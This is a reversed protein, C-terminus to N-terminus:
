RAAANPPKADMHMWLQSLHKHMWICGYAHLASALAKVNMHMWLRGLQGHTQADMHMRPQM